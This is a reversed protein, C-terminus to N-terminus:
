SMGGCDDRKSETAAAAARLPTARVLPLVAVAAIAARPRPPRYVACAAAAAPRLCGVGSAAGGVAM